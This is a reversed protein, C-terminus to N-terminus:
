TLKGIGDWRYATEKLGGGWGNVPREAIQRGGLREYFGRAPRNETLVWIVLSKAGQAALTRAAASLLRRGLGRAQVSKLLYLTFVEADALKNDGSLLAGACYAVLGDPGEAVLVAEGPKARTLQLRWRRAHLEPRMAALYPEPLLGPYAQRWTKVHLEGLAAADGPGPPFIVNDALREM